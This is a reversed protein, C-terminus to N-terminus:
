SAQEVVIMQLESTGFQLNDGMALTQGSRAPQGNHLVASSTHLELQIGRNSRVLAIAGNVGPLGVPMIRASEVDAPPAGIILRGFPLMVAKHQMLIHTPM